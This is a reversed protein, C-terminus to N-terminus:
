CKDLAWHPSLTKSFPMQWHSPSLFGSYCNGLQIDRCIQSVPVHVIDETKRLENYSSDTTRVEQQSDVYGRNSPLTSIRGPILAVAGTRTEITVIWRCRRSVILGVASESRLDCTLECRLSIMSM